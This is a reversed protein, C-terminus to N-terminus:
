VELTRHTPSFFHSDWGPKYISLLTISFTSHDSKYFGFYGYCVDIPSSMKQEREDM